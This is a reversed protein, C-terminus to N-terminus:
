VLGNMGQEEDPRARNQRVGRELHGGDAVLGKALVLTETTGGAQGERGKESFSFEHMHQYFLRNKKILWRGIYRGWPVVRHYHWAM